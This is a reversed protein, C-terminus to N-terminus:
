LPRTYADQIYASAQEESLQKGEVLGKILVDAYAKPPARIPFKGSKFSDVDSSTCTMTLIPIGGEKGLYLVNHYWGRKVAEVSITKENEISHLATLDFLPARMDYNPDNEQLLIDNFQDLTIRYLCTYAKDQTSEPHLFAVGGHGWTVTHDRGFFLRHPITKWIIEKPLSKDMAGACQKQMGEVKGGEIYCRLRPFYMNSGFTAYWIGIKQLESRWTSSVAIAQDAADENVRLSLLPVIVNDIVKDLDEAVTHAGSDEDESDSSIIHVYPARESTVKDALKESLTPWFASLVERVNQIVKWTSEFPYAESSGPIPKQQLLVEVCAQASKAISDLNYGGELALVIKGGAFEM